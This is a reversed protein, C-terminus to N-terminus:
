QLLDKSQLARIRADVDKDLKERLDRRLSLSVLLLNGANRVEFDREGATFTCTYWEDTDLIKPAVNLGATFTNCLNIARYYADDKKPFKKHWEVLKVRQKLGPWVTQLEDMTQVSDPIVPYIYARFSTTFFEDDPKEREEIYEFMPNAKLPEFYYSVGMGLFQKIGGFKKVPFDGLDGAEPNGINYARGVAIGFLQTPVGQKDGVDALTHPVAASVFAFAAGAILARRWLHKSSRVM